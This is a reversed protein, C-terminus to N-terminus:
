ANSAAPEVPQEPVGLIQAGNHVAVVPRSISEDGATAFPTTYTPERSPFKYANSAAPEVPQEPVGLVQAGNHAPAVPLAISVDDGATAFPTTYTPALSPFRYVNSAAPEVPQEPV